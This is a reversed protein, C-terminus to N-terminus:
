PHAVIVAVSPECITRLVTWTTQIPPQPRRGCRLERCRTADWCKCSFVILRVITAATAKALTNDSAGRAVRSALISGGATFSIVCFVVVTPHIATGRAVIACRDERFTRRIPGHSSWTVDTVGLLPMVARLKSVASLCIVIIRSALADAARPSMDSLTFM